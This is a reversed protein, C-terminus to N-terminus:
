SLSSRSLHFVVELWSRSVFCSKSPLEARLSESAQELSSLVVHLSVARSLAQLLLFFNFAFAISLVVHQLFSFCFISRSPSLALPFFLVRLFTAELSLFSIQPSSECLGTISPNGHDLCSVVSSSFTFLFTFFYNEFPKDLVSTASAHHHHHRDPVFSSMPFRYCTRSVSHVCFILQSGCALM